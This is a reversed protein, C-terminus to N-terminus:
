PLARRAQGRRRCVPRWLATRESCRRSPQSAAAAHSCAGLSLHLPRQGAARRRSAAAANRQAPVAAAVDIVHRDGRARDAQREDDLGLRPGVGGVLERAGGRARAPHGGAAPTPTPVSRHRHQADHPGVSDPSELVTDQHHREVPQRGRQAVAHASPCPGREQRRGRRMPPCLLAGIARTLGRGSDGDRARKPDCHSCWDLVRSSVRQEDKGLTQRSHRSVSAALRFRWRAARRWGDVDGAWVCPFCLYAPVPSSVTGPGPRHFTV